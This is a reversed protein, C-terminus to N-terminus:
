RRKRNRNLEKWAFLAAGLAGTMQPYEAVLVPANLEQRLARIVGTNKAVGGTLVFEPEMHTRNLLGM